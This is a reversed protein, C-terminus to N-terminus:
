NGIESRVPKWRMCTNADTTAVTLNECRMADNDKSAETTGEEDERM